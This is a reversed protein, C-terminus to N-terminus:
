QDLLYAEPFHQAREEEPPPTRWDGYIQNLYLEPQAPVNFPLGEFSMRKTPFLLRADLPPMAGLIDVYFGESPNIEAAGTAAEASHANEDLRQNLSDIDLHRAFPCILKKAIKAVRTSAISPDAVAFSRVLGLHANRAQIRRLSRNSSSSVHELPFIDVWLGIKHAPGVFTEYSSTRPSVLKLFQYISTHSRYSVLKCSSSLGNQFLNYLQEYDTRPMCVDIDDDWPIFGGHRIAGLCSGYALVYTFGRATCIADFERLVELEVAKIEDPSLQRM